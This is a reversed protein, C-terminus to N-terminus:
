FAANCYNFLEVVRKKICENYNGAVLIIAMSGHDEGYFVSSALKSDADRYALWARQAKVLNDKAEGSLKASLKKYYKNLLVDYDKSSDSIAESMGITSCDEDMRLEEARSISFTDVAFAIESEEAYSNAAKYKTRFNAIDKKLKAVDSNKLQSATNTPYTSQATATIAMCLCAIFSVILKKM